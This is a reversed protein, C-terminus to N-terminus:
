RSPAPLRLAQSRSSALTGGQESSLRCVKVAENAYDCPFGTVANKELVVWGVGLPKLAQVRVEDTKESLGTQAAQGIVWDKTLEPTISAEGGDKSYDPLASRESIARFCQADENPKEIYDADLALLADKPTNDRVWLFARTWPNREKYHNAADPLELHSSAPFTQREALVMVGALLSFAAIWRTKNHKLFYRATEAGVFLIMAVYVLQLTRLPQLRAVIHSASDVHVFLLSVTIAGLGIVLSTRALAARATSVRPRVADMSLLLLPAALGIWEYWHWESLFWYSRTTAVRVYAASEPRSVAQLLGAMVAAGLVAFASARAWNARFTLVMSLVLVACLAYAAMLPHFLFAILLAIAALLVGRKREKVDEDLLALAGALAFMACPTSISRATVYPDMLMLSTGAIPLTIWTALLAVAGTQAIREEYCRVAIQWAAFLTAWFSAIYLLFLGTAVSLGSWRVIGAIVPAFISFRLHEAVFATQHPYMQPDLLHKVGALYLGGDEAYPHYGHVLVALFTLVTV